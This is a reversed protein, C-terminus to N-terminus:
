KKLILASGIDGGLKGALNAVDWWGSKQYKKGILDNQANGYALKNQSQNQLAQAVSKAFDLSGTAKDGALGALAKDRESAMNATAQGIVRQGQTVQGAVGQEASAARISDLTNKNLNQVGQGYAQKITGEAQNLYDQYKQQATQFAQLTSATNIDSNQNFTNYAAKTADYNWAKKSGM